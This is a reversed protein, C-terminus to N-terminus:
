VPWSGALRQSLEELAPRTEHLAREEGFTEVLSRTEVGDIGVEARGALVAVPVGAERATDIIGKTTKGHLSQADFTGEGTIVADAARAREPLRVADMVIRIGPRLKAGCFAVMGGGLGGAAGAGPITRIDIGLDRHLVAAYHGLARDLLAVDDPTAGKQPGFVAAAGSPGTLPNDVDCAVVFRTERVSRDIGSVDVSALGLLHEGGPAIERGAQDLLRAGIAQAM